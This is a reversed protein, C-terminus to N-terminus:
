RSIFDLLKRDFSLTGNIKYVNIDAITTAGKKIKAVVHGETHLTELDTKSLAIVLDKINVILKGTQTDPISIKAGYFDHLEQGTILDHVPQISPSTESIHNEFERRLTIIVTNRTNDWQVEAGLAEAVFRIPVFIRGGIMQPPPNSLIERGNVILKISQAAFGLSTVAFTFGIFLGVLLGLWLRQM